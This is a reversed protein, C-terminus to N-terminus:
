IRVSPARSCACWAPGSSRRARAVLLMHRAIAPEHRASCHYRRQLSPLLPGAHLLEDRICPHARAVDSAALLTNILRPCAAPARRVQMKGHMLHAVHAPDVRGFIADVDLVKAIFVDCLLQTMYVAKAPIIGQWGFLGFPQGDPQWVKFPAFDTPHFTMWVAVVNTLYGVIGSLIPIVIYM